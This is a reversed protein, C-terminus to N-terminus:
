ADVWTEDFAGFRFATAKFNKVRKTHAALAYIFLPEAFPGNERLYPQLRGYAKRRDDVSVTASAEDLLKEFEPDSFHTENWAAGSRLSLGLLMTALPRHSWYSAGFGWELWKAWYAEAPMPVLNIKVGIQSANQAFVQSAAGIFEPAAPYRMETEFGDPYGAETLLAKARELDQKPTDMSAWAPDVGPAVMDDTGDFATDGLALSIIQERNQCLKLAMRVRPDDFPKVDVRMRFLLTGASKTKSVVIDPQESLAKYSSVDLGLALDFEGSVLGAIQAPAQSKIDVSVVEDLYPLAQGDADKRWYDKRARLTFSQNPVYEVLDFPGTGWPEALFDGKFERPMIAGAYHFFDYALSNTANSLHLKITRADVKEIGDPKLYPQLLGTMSSGTAPDLWRKLNFIVDDADIERPTPMNFVPGRRVVLTWTKLDASADLSELLHPHPVNNEDVRTLFEAVGRVADSAGLSDVAAPDRFPKLTDTNAYKLTGGRRPPGDATGALSGARAFGCQLALISAAIATGSKLLNRRTLQSVHKYVTDM